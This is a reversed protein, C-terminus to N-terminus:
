INVPSALAQSGVRLSHASYRTTHTARRQHSRLENKILTARRWTSKLKPEGDDLARANLMPQTM